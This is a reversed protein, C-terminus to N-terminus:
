VRKIHSIQRKLRNAIIYAAPTFMVALLTLKWDLVALMVIKIMDVMGKQGNIIDYLCQALQGEFYPGAAMGVNYLIGTITVISLVAKERRFYSLIRNSDDM